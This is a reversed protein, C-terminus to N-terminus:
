ENKWGDDDAWPREDAWWGAGFCSRVAQWVLRAGRYVAVIAKGGRYIASVRRGGHEIM